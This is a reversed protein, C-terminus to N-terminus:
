HHGDDIAAGIYSATLITFVFAQVFAVILEIAMMFMTLPVSMFTGVVSGGLSEGAKGFIFILGIFSLIAIHGSVINGALRLMLTIPKIFVGLFEVFALLPKVFVPVGPMWFIHQWYHKKGSFSVVLFVLIALIGTVTLNGTVNTGGLFPIQGFLNLGLIFFFLSMLLPLYKLYRDRGIFPIAVEDRIFTFVPELWSQVGSPAKGNRRTYAVAAQRFLWFLILAVLIMSLVNKTISFDYFSTFKGGFMGNDLTTRPDLPYETGQYNLFVVEDNEDNIHETFSHPGIEVLDNPFSPDKIRHVNGEFLVYRHYAYEGNDHEGPHFRGSSFIDLGEDKSYLIMPLPIRIFDLITYVNADSIHHLATATPDFAAPGEEHSAEAHTADEQHEDSEHQAWGTYPLSFLAAILPVILYRHSLMRM